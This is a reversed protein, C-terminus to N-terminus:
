FLQCSDGVSCIPCSAVVVEGRRREKDLTGLMQAYSVAPISFRCFIEKLLLAEEDMGGGITSVISMRASRHTQGGRKQLIDHCFNM